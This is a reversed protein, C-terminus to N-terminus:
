FSLFFWFTSCNHSTPPHFCSNEKRVDSFLKYFLYYNIWAKFCLYSKSIIYIIYTFWYCENVLMNVGRKKFYSGTSQIWDDLITKKKPFTNYDEKLLETLTLMRIMSENLNLRFIEVNLWCKQFYNLQM